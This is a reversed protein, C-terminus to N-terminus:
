FSSQIVLGNVGPGIVPILTLASPGPKQQLDRTPPSSVARPKNFFFQWVLGGALAAAGAGLAIDGAYVLTRGTNGKDALDSQSKTCAHATGCADEADTVASFGVPLLVAGAILAVGGAGALYLPKLGFPREFRPPPPPPPPPVSPTASPPPTEVKPPLSKKLEDLRTRTSEADPADPSRRLYAELAAVASEIDGKNEYASAVNLLVAHAGCHVKYTDRWNEIARDFEGREFLQVAAAHMAKAAEIDAPTPTHTCVPFLVDPDDAARAASFAIFFVAIGIGCQIPRRTRSREM